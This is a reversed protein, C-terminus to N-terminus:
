AQDVYWLLEAMREVSGRRYLIWKLGVSRSHLQREETRFDIALGVDTLVAEGM